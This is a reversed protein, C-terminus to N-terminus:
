KDINFQLIKISQNIAIRGATTSRAQIPQGLMRFLLSGLGAPTVVTLVFQDEEQALVLCAVHAL